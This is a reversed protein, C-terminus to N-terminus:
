RHTQPAAFADAGIRDALQALAKELKTGRRVESITLGQNAAAGMVRAEEPLVVDFNRGLAREAAKIALLNQQEGTVANCVLTLPVRDLNQLALIGLQRRILHVHGVSLHSVLIIRDAM